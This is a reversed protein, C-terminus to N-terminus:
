KEPDPMLKRNGYYKWATHPIEEPKILDFNEKAQETLESILSQHDTAVYFTAEEEVAESFICFNDNYQYPILSLLEHAYNKYHHPSKSRAYLVKNM